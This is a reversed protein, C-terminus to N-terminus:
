SCAFLLAANLVTFHSYHQLLSASERANRECTALLSLMALPIPASFTEYTRLMFGCLSL